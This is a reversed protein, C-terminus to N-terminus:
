KKNVIKLAEEQIIQDLSKPEEVKNVESPKDTSVITGKVMEVIKNKCTTLEAEQNQAETDINDLTKTIKAIEDTNSDNVLKVLDGRLAQLLENLKAM